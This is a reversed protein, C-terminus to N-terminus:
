TTQDGPTSKGTKNYYYGDAHKELKEHNDQVAHFTAFWEQPNKPLAKTEKYNEVVTDLVQVGVDVMVWYNIKEGHKIHVGVGETMKPTKLRQEYIETFTDVVIMPIGEPHQNLYHSFIDWQLDSFEKRDRREALEQFGLARGFDPYKDNLGEEWNSYYREDIELIRKAETLCEVQEVPDEPVEVGLDILAQTFAIDKMGVDAENVKRTLKPGIKKSGENRTLNEIQAMYKPRQMRMANEMLDITRHKNESKLKEHELPQYNLNGKNRQDTFTILANSFDQNVIGNENLKDWSLYSEFSDTGWGEGFFQQGAQNLTKQVEVTFEKELQSVEKGMPGGPSWNNDGTKERIVKRLQGRIGQGSNGARKLGEILEETLCHEFFYDKLESPTMLEIEMGELQALMENGKHVATTGGGGGGKGLSHEVRKEEEEFPNDYLKQDDQFGYAREPIRHDSKKKGTPQGM